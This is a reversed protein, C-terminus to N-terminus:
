GEMGPEREVLRVGRARKGRHGSAMPDIRYAAVKADYDAKAAYWNKLRYGHLWRGSQPDRRIQEGAVGAQQCEPCDCPPGIFDADNM